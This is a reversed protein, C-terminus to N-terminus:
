IWLRVKLPCEHMRALLNCMKMSINTINAQKTQTTMLWWFPLSHLSFPGGAMQSFPNQHKIILMVYPSILTSTNTNITWTIRLPNSYPMSSAVGWFFVHFFRLLGLSLFLLIGLFCCLIGHLPCDAPVSTACQVTFLLRDPTCWVTQASPGAVLRGRATAGSQGTHMPCDPLPRIWRGVAVSGLPQSVHCPVLCHVTCTRHAGSQGTRGDVSLQQKQGVAIITPSAIFVGLRGNWPTPAWAVYWSM